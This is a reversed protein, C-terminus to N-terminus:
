SNNNRRATARDFLILADSGRLKLSPIFVQQQTNGIGTINATPVSLSSGVLGGSAFRPLNNYVRQVLRAGDYNKISSYAKNIQNFINTPIVGANLKNFFGVGYKDVSAAKIIYEGKSVRALISDSTKTGKGQIFGGSAFQLLKDSSFKSTVNTLVKDFFKSFTSVTSESFEKVSTDSKYVKDTFSNFTKILKENSNYVKDSYSKESFTKNDSVSTASFLKNFVDKVTNFSKVISSKDSFSKQNDSFTEKDKSFYKITSKLLSDTNVFKDKSKFEKSIANSFSATLKDSTHDSNSKAHSFVNTFEKSFIKSNDSFSKSVDHLSEKFIQKDNSVDSKSAEKFSNTKIVSSLDSVSTNNKVFAEISKYVEKFSNNKFTSSTDKIKELSKSTENSFTKYVDKLQSHDLNSEITSKFGTERSEKVHDSVSKIKDTISVKDFQKFSINKVFGSLSSRFKESLVKNFVDTSKSFTTVKNTFNRAFSNTFYELGRDLGSGSREFSTATKEKLLKDSLNNDSVRLESNKSSIIKSVESFLKDDKILNSSITVHNNESSQKFSLATKIKDFVSVEKQRDYDKVLSSFSTDKLVIKDYLRSFDSVKASVTSVMSGMQVAPSDKAKVVERIASYVKSFNDARKFVSNSDSSSRLVAEKSSYDRISTSTNSAKHSDLIAKFDTKFVSKVSDFVKTFGTLKQFSKKDTALYNFFTDKSTSRDTERSNTSRENATGGSIGRLAIQYIARARENEGSAPAFVRALVNFKGLQSYIGQSREHSQGYKIKTEALINGQNLFESQSRISKVFDTNTFIKSGSERFTSSYRDANRDHSITKAFSVSNNKTVAKEFTKQLLIFGKDSVNSKLISDHEKIKESEARSFIKGAHYVVKLVSQKATREVLDNIVKGNTNVATRYDTFAKFDSQSTNTDQSSTSVNNKSSVSKFSDSATILSKFVNVYNKDSSDSKFVKSIDKTHYFSKERITNLLENKSNNIEKHTAINKDSVHSILKDFGKDNNVFFNPAYTHFVTKEASVNKFIDPLKGSNLADFAKVGFKDVSKAKIVYEGASLNAPISDSTKTGPGKVHGGEALGLAKGIVAGLNFKKNSIFSIVIALAVAKLVALTLKKIVEGLSQAFAQFPNSNGIANFFSDFAPVLFESVGVATKLMEESLNGFSGTIVDIKGLDIGTGLSDFAQRLSEVHKLTDSFVKDLDSKGLAKLDLTLSGQKGSFVKNFELFAIEAADAIDSTNVNPNIELGIQIPDKELDTQLKHKFLEAAREAAQQNALQFEFPIPIPKDDLGGLVRKFKERLNIDTIRAQLEIIVPSDATKKFKDILHTIAGEILQIKAKAKEADFEISVKNPDKTIRDIDRALKALVSDVTEKDVTIKVKHEKGLLRDLEDQLKKISAVNEKIAAESLLGPQLDQLSKIQAKITAIMGTVGGAAKTLDPLGIFKTIFDIQNQLLKNDEDLIGLRLDRRNKIIEQAQAKTIGQAAAGAGLGGVIQTGTGIKAQAKNLENTTAIIVKQREIDLDLQKNTLETIKSVAAKARATEQISKTLAKYQEEAGGNLITEAKINGFFSPFETQLGKVAALRDNLSLTVDTSAKYLLRLDTIQKSADKNAADNIDNLNGQNAKLLKLANGVGDISSIWATFADVVPGAILNILGAIGIGPIIFAIKRLAGYASNLGSVFGGSGKEADKLAASQNKIQSTTDSLQSKATSLSGNLKVSEASMAAIEKRLAEFDRKGERSAQDFTKLKATAKGLDSENARLESNLTKISDKLQQETEKLANLRANMRDVASLISSVDAGARVELDMASAM